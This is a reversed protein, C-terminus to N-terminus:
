GIDAVVGLVLFEKSLAEASLQVLGILIFDLLALSLDGEM